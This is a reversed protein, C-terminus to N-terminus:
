SEPDDIINECKILIYSVYLIFFTEYIFTCFFITYKDNDIWKKLKHIIYMYKYHSLIKHLLLLERKVIQMSGVFEFTTDLNYTLIQFILTPAYKM